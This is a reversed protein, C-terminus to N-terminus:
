NQFSQNILEIIKEGPLTKPIFFMNGIRSGVVRDQVLQKEEVLNSLYAIPIHHTADKGRLLDTTMVGDMKPMKIDLLILDPQETEALTVAESGSSAPIVEFGGDRLIAVMVSLLDPEDDVILIRKKKIDDM